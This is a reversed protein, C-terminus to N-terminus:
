LREEHKRTSERLDSQLLHNLPDGTRAVSNCRSVPVTEGGYSWSTVIPRCRGSCSLQVPERRSSFPFLVKQSAASLPGADLPSHCTWLFAKEEGRGGEPGMNQTRTHTVQTIEKKRFWTNGIVMERETCMGILREGSDNKGPVGHVGVVVEIREDGVRANLDGM